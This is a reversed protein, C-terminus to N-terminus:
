TGIVCYASIIKLPLFPYKGSKSPPVIRPSAQLVHSARAPLGPFPPPGSASPSTALLSLPASQCCFRSLNKLLFPLVYLFHHELVATQCLTVPECFLASFPPLDSPLWAALIQM